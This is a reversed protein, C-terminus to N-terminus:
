RWRRRDKIESQGRRIRLVSGPDEETAYVTKWGPYSVPAIREFVERVDHLTMNVCGHSRRWGFGWHWFAGHIAYRPWFHIIWPVNGVFYPKEAGPASAMNAYITKDRIQFIGQPTSNNVTGTSVITLYEVAPGRRIALVQQGLDVDLWVEDNEVFAPAARPVWHRIGSHDQVYGPKGPGGGDPIEWWRGDEDVPEDRILLTSHYDLTAIVEADEDPAARVRTGKGRISWAPMMGEPVPDKVLDRSPLRSLPVVRVDDVPVVHGNRRVLVTGKETEQTAIFSKTGGLRYLSAEGAVYAEANKYARAKKEKYRRAYVFPSAPKLPPDPNRQYTGTEKYSDSEQSSPHTFDILTPLMRPVQDTETAGALCAYGDGRVKAWGPPDCDEGETMGLVEFPENPAIQGRRDAEEDPARLVLIRTESIWYAVESPAPTSPRETVAGSELETSPEGLETSTDVPAAAAVLSILFPLFLM